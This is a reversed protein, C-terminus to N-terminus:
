IQVEAAWLIMCTFPFVPCIEKALLVPRADFVDTLVEDQM